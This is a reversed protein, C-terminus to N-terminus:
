ILVENEDAYATYGRTLQFLVDQCRFDIEFLVPVQDDEIENLAFYLAVSPEESTSTYGRMHIIKGTTYDEIEPRTMKLGRYLMRSKKLSTDKHNPSANYIIYSM